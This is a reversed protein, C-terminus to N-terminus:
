QIVWLTPETTQVWSSTPTASAGDSFLWVLGPVATSAGGAGPLLVSWLTVQCNNDASSVVVTSASANVFRVGVGDTEFTAGPAMTSCESTTAAVAPTAPTPAVDGPAPPTCAEVYACLGLARTFATSVNSPGVPLVTIETLAETAPAIHAIGETSFGEWATGTFIIEGGGSTPATLPVGTECHIRPVGYRDIAVTTGKQLIAQTPFMAGAGYGNFTVRTDALLVGASLNRFYSAYDTADIGSGFGLTTDANLASAWVTALASDSAFAEQLAGTACGGFGLGYIEPTDGSVEAVSMSAVSEPLDAAAATSIEDYVAGGPDTPLFPNPGFQGAPVLTIETPPAAPAAWPARLDGRVAFYTGALSGVLLLLLVVLLAVLGGGGGRRTSAAAVTEGTSATERVPEARAPEAERVPEAEVVPEPSNPLVATKGTTEVPAAPEADGTLADIEDQLAKIKAQAKAKALADELAAIEDDHNTM